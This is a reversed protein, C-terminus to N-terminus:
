LPRVTPLRSGERRRWIEDVTTAFTAGEKPTLGRVLLGAVHFRPANKPINHRRHHLGRYTM